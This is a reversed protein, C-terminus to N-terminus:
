SSRWDVECTRMHGTCYLKRGCTACPTTGVDDCPGSGDGPCLDQAPPLEDLFYGLSLLFNGDTHEDDKKERQPQRGRKKRAGVALSLYFLSFSTVM